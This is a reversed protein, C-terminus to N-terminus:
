ELALFGMAFLTIGFGLQIDSTTNLIFFVGAIVTIVSVVRKAIHM